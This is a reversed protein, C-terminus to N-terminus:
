RCPCIFLKEEKGLNLHELHEHNRHILPLLTRYDVNTRYLHLARIQRLEALPIFEDADLSTCSDLNLIQLHPCHQAIWTLHDGTLYQCTSLNLQLLQQACPQLLRKFSPASISATWALSLFRTKACQHQFFNEIATDDIGNWYPQLNLSQFQLPNLCHERLYRCTSSLRILSSLDLRLCIQFLVDFPLDILKISGSAAPADVSPPDSPVNQSKQVSCSPSHSDRAWSLLSRVLASPGTSASGNASLTM